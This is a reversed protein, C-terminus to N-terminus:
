LNYLDKYWKIWDEIKDDGFQGAANLIDTSTLISFKPNYNILHEYQNISNALAKNDPHHVVSFYVHKYIGENELSLGLLQNRWLQNMGGRFPCSEYKEHNAFFSQNNGTIDWYKFKKVDQYYCLNKNSLIDCFPKECHHKSKDRGASKYGGCDTFEKETLKHEVLWLCLEDVKNYFAIGIDSDTGSKVCHDGLLGKENPSNGDWFEIRFGKYLENKALRDFNLIKSINLCKIIDDAKSNLLIPLFLNINAAQSSAMHNFHIHLKFDFFIKQTKLDELVEPYILPFKSRVSEPLIADYPIEQGKHMNYGVDKTLNKWKWNILHVYMETQFDSLHNPLKYQRGNINRIQM